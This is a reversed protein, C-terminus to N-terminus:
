GAKILGSIDTKIKPGDMVTLDIQLTKILEAHEVSNEYAEHWKIVDDATIGLQTAEDPKAPAAALGNTKLQELQDELENIKEQLREQASEMSKEYQSHQKESLALYKDREEETTTLGERLNEVEKKFDEVSL